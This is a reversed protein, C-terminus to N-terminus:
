FRIIAIQEAGYVAVEGCAECALPGADPECGDADAGCEICIGPSEMGGFQSTCVAELREVTISEHM